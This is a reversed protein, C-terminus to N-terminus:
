FWDISGQCIFLFMCLCKLLCWIYMEMVVYSDWFPQYMFLLHVKIIGKLHKVLESGSTPEHSHEVFENFLFACM